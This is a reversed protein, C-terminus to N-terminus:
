SSMSSIDGSIQLDRGAMLNIEFTRVYMVGHLSRGGSPSAQSACPESGDRDRHGSVVEEPM